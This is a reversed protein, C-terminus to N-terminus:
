RKVIADLIVNSVFESIFNLTKTSNQKLKEEGGIPLLSMQIAYFEKITGYILSTIAYSNINKYEDKLELKNLIIKVYEQEKEVYPIISEDVNTGYNAMERLALSISTPRKKFSIVIANIYARLLTERELKGMFVTKINGNLEILINEIIEQYLTKKDQFHYYITSKNIELKKVLDNMSVADYGLRAFEEEAVELIHEKTKM